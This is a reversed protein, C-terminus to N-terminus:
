KAPVDVRDRAADAPAQDDIRNTLELLIMRYLCSAMTLELSAASQALKMTTAIMDNIQKDRAQM